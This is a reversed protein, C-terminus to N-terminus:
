IALKVSKYLRGQREKNIETTFKRGLNLLCGTEPKMCENMRQVSLVNGSIM